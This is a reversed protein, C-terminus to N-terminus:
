LQCYLQMCIYIIENSTCIENIPKQTFTYIYIIFRLEISFENIDKHEGCM